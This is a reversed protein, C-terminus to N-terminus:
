PRMLREDAPGDAEIDPVCLMRATGNTLFVLRGGPRLLRAAEPIWAIPRGM